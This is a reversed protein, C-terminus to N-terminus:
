IPLLTSMPTFVLKHTVTVFQIKVAAQTIEIPSHYGINM